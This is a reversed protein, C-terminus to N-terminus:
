WLHIVQSTEYHFPFQPKHIHIYQKLKASHSLKNILTSDRGLICFIVLFLFRLFTLLLSTVTVSTFEEMHSSIVDSEGHQPSSSVRAAPPKSTEDVGNREGPQPTTSTYDSSLLIRFCFEFLSPLLSHKNTPWPGSLRHLVNFKHRASYALHTFAELISCRCKPRKIIVKVFVRRQLWPSVKTSPTHFVSLAVRKVCHLVWLLSTTFTFTNSCVSYEWM